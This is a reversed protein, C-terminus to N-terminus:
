VPRPDDPWRESGPHEGIRHNPCKSGDSLHVILARVDGASKEFLNRHIAKCKGAVQVRGRHALKEALSSQTHFLYTFNSYAKLANKLRLEEEKTLGETCNSAFHLVFNPNTEAFHDLIETAKGRLSVNIDRALDPDQAMLQGLFTLIKDLENSPFFSETKNIKIAYKCNLFHVIPPTKSEDIYVADIGRDKGPSDGRAVRYDDDTIAEDIEVDQLEFLSGLVVYYFARSESGLSNDKQARVVHQHIVAFDQISKRKM